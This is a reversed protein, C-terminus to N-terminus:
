PQVSETIRSLLSQDIAQRLNTADLGSERVLFCMASVPGLQRCLHDLADLRETDTYHTTVDNTM